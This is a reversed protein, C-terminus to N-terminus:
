LCFIVCEVYAFYFVVFCVLCAVVCLVVYVFICAVVCVVVYVFICAVVCLLMFLFVHLWVGSIEEM